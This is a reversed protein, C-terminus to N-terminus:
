EAVPGNPPTTEPDKMMAIVSRRLLFESYPVVKRKEQRMKRATHMIMIESNKM